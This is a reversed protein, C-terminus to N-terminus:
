HIGSFSQKLKIYSGIYFEKGASFIKHHEISLDRNLFWLGILVGLITFIVSAVAVALLSKFLFVAILDGAINALVMFIVKILNMEPRNISDLGVGTMRDIPLLLGYLSFVRVISATNVGTVPDTGIYQHGGLILVFLDAFVFTILSILIFLYTIAGSYSYFISKVEDTKGLISAKSMKPFATAAFSRLPIQQLETLKMPISYLAVAAPGMPSLSIILTDASRLLNTGILTFTTYKGFDLLTRITEKTAHLLQRFGDWGQIVCIVSTMANIGLMALLLQLISMKLFLFNVLLVMFFGGSSILRILLIRGFKQDAQMIVLATNFPLNLFAMLPYWTFFMEYGAHKIPDSFFIQCVILTAAIFLTAGLGIVWNSGIYKNREEPGSGSLYRILATNTIGFRFMEIFTGSSVFLVWQGFVDLPFSRALMAFGAFGFFAITLNGALSLFNDEKIIKKITTKL